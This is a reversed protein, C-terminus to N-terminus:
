VVKLILYANILDDRCSELTPYRAILLDIHKQLKKDFNNQTM